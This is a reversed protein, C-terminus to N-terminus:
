QFPNSKGGSGPEVPLSGFVRLSTFAAQTLISNDIRAGQLSQMSSLQFGVELPPVAATPDSGTSYLFGLVLGLVMILYVLLKSQQTTAM